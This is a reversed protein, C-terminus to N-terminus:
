AVTGLGTERDPSHPVRVGLYVSPWWQPLSEADALVTAVELVTGPM